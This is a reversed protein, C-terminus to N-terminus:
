NNCEKPNSYGHLIGVVFTIVGTILATVFTASVGAGEVNVMEKKDLERM